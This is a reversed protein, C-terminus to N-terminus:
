QATCWAAAQPAVHWGKVVGHSIRYVLPSKSLLASLTALGQTRRHLLCSHMPHRGDISILKALDRLEVEIDDTVAM